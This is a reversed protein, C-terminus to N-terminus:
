QQNQVINKEYCGLKIIQFEGQDELFKVYHCDPNSYTSKKKVYLVRGSLLSKVIAMIELTTIPQTAVSRQVPIIIDEASLSHTAFNSVALFFTLIITKILPHTRLIIRM